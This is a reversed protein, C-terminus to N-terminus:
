EQYYVDLAPLVHTGPQLYAICEGPWPFARLLSLPPYFEIDEIPQGETSSWIWTPAALYRLFVLARM